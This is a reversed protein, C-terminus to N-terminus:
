DAPKETVVEACCRVPSEDSIRKTQPSRHVRRQTEQRAGLPIGAHQQPKIVVLHQRRAPPHEVICRAGHHLRGGHHLRLPTGLKHEPAAEARILRSDGLTFTFVRLKRVQGEREVDGLPGWDVRAQRSPRTEFRRVAAVRAGVRQPRLWETLMTCGGVTGRQRLEVGGLM